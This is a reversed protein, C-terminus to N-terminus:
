PISHGCYSIMKQLQLKERRGHDEETSGGAAIAHFLTATLDSRNRKAQRNLNIAIDGSTEAVSALMFVHAPFDARYWAGGEPFWDSRSGVPEKTM